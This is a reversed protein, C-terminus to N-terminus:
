VSPFLFFEVKFDGWAEAHPGVLSGVRTEPNYSAVCDQRCMHALAFLGRVSGRLNRRLRLRVGLPVALLAGRGVTGGAFSVAAVLTDETASRRVEATEVKFGLDRLKDVVYQASVDHVPGYKQSSRLGVNLYLAITPLPIETNPINM